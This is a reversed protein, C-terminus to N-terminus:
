DLIRISATKYDSKTGNHVVFDIVFTGEFNYVHTPNEDSTYIGDGFNWNFRVGNESLNTFFVTDGVKPELPEFSFDADPKEGCQTLLLLMMISSALIYVSRKM